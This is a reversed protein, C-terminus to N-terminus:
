CMYTSYNILKSFKMDIKKGGKFIRQKGNKFFFKKLFFIEKFFFKRQPFIGVNSCIIYNLTLVALTTSSIVTAYIAYIPFSSKSKKESLCTMHKKLSGGQDHVTIQHGNEEL